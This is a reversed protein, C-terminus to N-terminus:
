TKRIEASDSSSMNEPTKVSNQHLPGAISARIAEEADDAEEPVILGSEEEKRHLAKKKRQEKWEEMKPLLYDHYIFDLISALPIGLLIGIVGFMRGFAIICILIWLGPVGLSGGFLKPKLVYGDVTQLCVTFILFYVVYMPKVLLLILSGIVGGVIPGFTPALNTVGVVVSILANYPMGAISMFVANAVGIIAGDILDFGIFRILIQNCRGWFNAAEAYHKESLLIRNFRGFGNLIRRKDLLIYISIIFSIVGNMVGSGIGTVTDVVNGSNSTILDVLKSLANEGFNTIGSIDINLQSASKSLMNLWKNLSDAYDNLNGIFTVVSDILQPILAVLLIVILFILLLITVTVSIGWRVPERRVKPFVYRRILNALPNIIYAIAAGTLIPSIFHILKGIGVFLLNIHSLCVYFFVAICLAVAYDKWQRRSNSSFLKM